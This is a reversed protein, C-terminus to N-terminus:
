QHAELNDEPVQAINHSKEQPYHSHRNVESLVIFIFLSDMEDLDLQGVSNILLTHSAIKFLSHSEPHQM